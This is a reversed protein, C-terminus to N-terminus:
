PLGKRRLYDRLWRLSPSRPKLDLVVTMSDGNEMWWNRGDRTQILDNVRRVGVLDPPLRDLIAGPLNGDFGFLPWVWYGVDGTVDNRIAYGRIEAVGLRIAHEVQRGILRAGHGRRQFEESVDIQDDELIAKGDLRRYLLARLDILDSEARIEIIRRGHRPIVAVTVQADDPAGALNAAERLTARTRGLLSRMVSVIQDETQGEAAQVVAKSPGFRRPKRSDDPRDRKADTGM